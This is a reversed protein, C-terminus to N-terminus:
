KNIEEEKELILNKISNLVDPINIPIDELDEKIEKTEIYYEKDEIKHILKFNIEPNGSILSVFTAAIDGLPKRDIHSRKFNAFVKTGKNIESEMSLSGGSIIASQELLSVGLGVSRTTRTTFFPDRVKELTEKNMGPGDDEISLKLYDEKISEELIISINNSGVETSNQVVDLIHLSLDKM